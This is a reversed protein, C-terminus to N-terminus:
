PCPMVTLMTEGPLVAPAPISGSSSRMGIERIGRPRLTDTSSTTCAIMYKRDSEAVPTVPCTRAMLPPRLVHYAVVSDLRITISHVGFADIPVPTLRVHRQLQRRQHTKSERSPRDTTNAERQHNPPAVSSM